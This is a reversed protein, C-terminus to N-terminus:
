LGRRKDRERLQDLVTPAGAARHTPPRLAARHIAGREDLRSEVEDLIRREIEEDRRADAEERRRRVVRDHQSWTVASFFLFVWFTGWRGNVAAAVTLFLLLTTALGWSSGKERM